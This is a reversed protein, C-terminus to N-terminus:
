PRSWVGHTTERVQRDLKFFEDTDSRDPPEIKGRLIKLALEMAPRDVAGYGIHLYEPYQNPVDTWKIPTASFIVAGDVVGCTPGDEYQAEPRETATVFVLRKWEELTLKGDVLPGSAVLGKPGQAVIDDEVGTDTDGLLRRADMLM